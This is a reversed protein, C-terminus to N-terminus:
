EWVKFVSFLVLALPYIVVMVPALVGSDFARLGLDLFSGAGPELMSLLSHLLWVMGLGLGSGLVAVLFGSFRHGALKQSLAVFLLAGLVVMLQPFVLGLGALALASIVGVLRNRRLDGGLASVGLLLAFVISPSNPAFARFMDSIVSLWWFLPLTLLSAAIWLLLISKRNM